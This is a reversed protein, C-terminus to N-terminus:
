PRVRAVLRWLDSAPVIDGCACKGLGQKTIRLWCSQCVFKHQGLVANRAIHSREIPQTSM